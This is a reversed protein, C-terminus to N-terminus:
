AQGTVSKFLGSQLLGGLASELGAGQPVQGNPTLHNIVEPLVQALLSSLQGAPLGGKQALATIQDAGLAQHMQDGTVPTNPGTSVWSAAQAGLGAGAFQQVLGALGNGSSHKTIMETVLNMVVTQTNGGSNGTFAGLASQALDSFLSM